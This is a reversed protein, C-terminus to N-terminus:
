RDLEIALVGDTTRLLFGEADVPVDFVLGATHEVEPDDFSTERWWDEFDLSMDGHEVSWSNSARLNPDYVRGASDQLVFDEFPFPSYASDIVSIRFVVVLWQGAPERRYSPSISSPTETRVIEFNLKDEFIGVTLSWGDGISGYLEYDDTLTVTSTPVTVDAIPTATADASRTAGPEPTPSTEVAVATELRAIRTQMAAITGELDPTSPAPTATLLLSEAHTTIGNTESLFSASGSAVAVICVAALFRIAVSRGSWSPM